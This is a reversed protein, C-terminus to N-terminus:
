LENLIDGGECHKKLLRYYRRTERPLREVVICNYKQLMMDVNGQGWNYAISAVYETKVTSDNEDYVKLNSYVTALWKLQSTGVDINQEADWINDVKFHKELVPMIQMIGKARGCYTQCGLSNPDLTGGTEILCIGLVYEPELGKKTSIEWILKKVKTHEGKIFKDYATEVTAPSKYAYPLIDTRAQVPLFNLM